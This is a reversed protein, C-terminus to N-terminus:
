GTDAWDTKDPSGHRASNQATPDHSTAYHLTASASKLKHSITGNPSSQHPPTDCPSAQHPSTADHSTADCPSAQQPPTSHDATTTIWKGDTRKLRLRNSHLYSHHAPCLLALNTLDTRGGHEYEIVHHVDCRDHAVDCGDIACRGGDRIIVALRQLTTALRRSRGFSLIAGSADRVAGYVDSRAAIEAADTLSVPGSGPGAGAIDADLTDANMTVVISPRLGGGKTAGEGTGTNTTGHVLSMLADALRAHLPPGGHGGSTQAREPHEVRWAGDAIRLLCARLEAGEVPTLVGRVGVCGEEATFFRVSRAAKQRERLGAGDRDLEFRAVTADFTEPSQVAALALLEAADDIDEIRALVALHEASVEGAALAEAAGAVKEAVQAAKTQERARRASSGTARAFAAATDRGRTGLGTILAASAADVTRRIRELERLGADIDARLWGNPAVVPVVVNSWVASGKM